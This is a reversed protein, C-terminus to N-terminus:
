SLASMQAVLLSILSLNDLALHTGFSKLGFPPFITINWPAKSDLHLRGELYQGTWTPHVLPARNSPYPRRLDVLHFGTHSGTLVLAVVGGLSLNQCCFLDEHHIIKNFAGVFNIQFILL